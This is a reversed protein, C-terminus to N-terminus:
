TSQLDDRVGFVEPWPDEGFVEWLPRGKKPSAFSANEECVEGM